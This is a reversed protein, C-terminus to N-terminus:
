EAVTSDTAEVHKDCKSSDKKCEPKCASDKKCEKGAAECAKKCSDTAACEKKDHCCAGEKATETGGCATALATIAAFSLMYIAKKM